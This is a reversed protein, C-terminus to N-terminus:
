VNGSKCVGDLICYAFSPHQCWCSYNGGTPTPRPIKIYFTSAKAIVTLLNRYSQWHIWPGWDWAWQCLVLQRGGLARAPLSCCLFEARCMCARGWAPFAAAAPCSSNITHRWCPFASCLRHRLYILSHATASGWVERVSECQVVPITVDNYVCVHLSVFKANDKMHHCQQQHNSAWKPIGYFYFTPVTKFTKKEFIFFTNQWLHVSYNNITSVWM